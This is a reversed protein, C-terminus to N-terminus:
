RCGPRIRDRALYCPEKHDSAARSPATPQQVPSPEDVNGQYELGTDFFGTVYEEAALHSNQDVLVGRNRAKSPDRLAPVPMTDLPQLLRLFRGAAQSAPLNM